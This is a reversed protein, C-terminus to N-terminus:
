GPLEPLESLWQHVRGPEGLTGLREFIELAQTLSDRAAALCGLRAQARGDGAYARALENDAGIERLIPISKEFHAEAATSGAEGPDEALALDGLLRHAAGIEFPMGCRTAIELTSEATQGAKRYDGALWYGEALWSAWLESFPVANLARFIETVASLIELGERHRGTRCWARALGGMHWRKDPLPSRGALEGYKLAGDLDGPGHM